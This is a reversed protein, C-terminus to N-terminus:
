LPLPQSDSRSSTAQLYYILYLSSSVRRVYTDVPNVSSSHLKVLVEGPKRAPVPVDTRYELVEHEGPRNVIVATMSTM